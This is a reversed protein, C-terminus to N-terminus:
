SPLEFIRIEEEDRKEDRDFKYIIVSQNNQIIELQYASIREGLSMKAYFIKGDEDKFENELNVYARIRSGIPAQQIWGADFIIEKTIQEPNIPTINLITRQGKIFYDNREGKDIEKLYHLSTLHTIKTVVGEVVENLEKRKGLYNKKMAQNIKEQERILEELGKETGM